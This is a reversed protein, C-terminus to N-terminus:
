KLYAPEDCSGAQGNMRGDVGSVHNSADPEAITRGSVVMLLNQDQQALGATIAGGNALFKGPKQRHLGLGLVFGVVDGTRGRIFGHLAGPAADADRSPDKGSLRRLGGFRLELSPNMSAVQRDERGDLLADGAPTRAHLFM